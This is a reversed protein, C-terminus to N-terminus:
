ISSFRPQPSASEVNGARCCRNPGDPSNVCGQARKRSRAVAPESQLLQKIANTFVIVLRRGPVHSFLHHHSRRLRPRADLKMADGHFHDLAALAPRQQKQMGSMRAAPEIGLRWHQLQEGLACAHDRRRM